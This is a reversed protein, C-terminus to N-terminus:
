SSVTDVFLPQVVVSLIETVTSFGGLIVEEVSTMPVSVHPSILIETCVSATSPEPEQDCELPRPKNKEGVSALVVKVVFVNLVECFRM